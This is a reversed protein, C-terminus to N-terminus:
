KTKKREGDIGRKRQKARGRGGGRGKGEGEMGEDRKRGKREM